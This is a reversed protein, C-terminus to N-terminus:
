VIEWNEIKSLLKRKGTATKYFREQRFAEYKDSYSERYLIEFPRRNKTSHVKGANHFELRAGLDETCGIYLNGDKKSKLVYVFHM